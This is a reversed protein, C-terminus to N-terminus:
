IWLNFFFMIHFVFPFKGSFVYLYFLSEFQEYYHTWLPQRIKCDILQTVARARHYIGSDKNLPQRIPRESVTERQYTDNNLM